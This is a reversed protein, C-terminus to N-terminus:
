ETEPNPVSDNENQSIGNEPVAKELTNKFEKSSHVLMELLKLENRLLQVLNQNARSSNAVVDSTGSNEGTIDGLKSPKCLKKIITALNNDTVRKMLDLRDSLYQLCEPTPEEPNTANAASDESM